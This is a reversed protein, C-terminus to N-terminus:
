CIKENTIYINYNMIICIFFMFNNPTVSNSQPIKQLDTFQSEYIFYGM